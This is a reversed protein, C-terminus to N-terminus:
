NRIAGLLLLPASHSGSHVQVSEYLLGEPMGPKVTIRMFIKDAKDSDKKYDLLEIDLYPSEPLLAYIQEGERVYDPTHPLWRVLAEVEKSEGPAMRGLLIRPPTIVWRRGGEPLKPLTCLHRVQMDFVPVDPHDTEVVWFRRLPKGDARLCTSSDVDSLDWELTYHNQPQQRSPDFNVFKPEEGNVAIISFPKQDTSLVTFTGSNVVTEQMQDDFEAYIYPPDARVALAVTAKVQVEVVDDYGAFKLRVAATKDGLTSKTFTAEMPASQGPQIVTGSMDVATCSCSARSAEITLPITGVNRIQVSGTVLEGPAVTGFNLTPPDIMIPPRRPVRDAPDASDAGAAAAAQQTLSPRGDPEEQQGNAPAAANESTADKSQLSANQVETDDSGGSMQRGVLIGVALMVVAIVLMLVPWVGSAGRRAASTRSVTM